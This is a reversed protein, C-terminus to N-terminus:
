GAVRRTCWSRLRHLLGTCLLAGGSLAMVCVNQLRLQSSTGEGSQRGRLPLLEPLRGLASCWTGRVLCPLCAVAHPCGGVRQPKGGSGCTCAHQLLRQRCDCALQQTRPCCWSTSSHAAAGRRRAPLQFTLVQPDLPGVLYPLSHHNYSHAVQLNTQPYDRLQCRQAARKSVEFSSGDLESETSWSERRLIRWAFYPQHDGLPLTIERVRPPKADAAAEM